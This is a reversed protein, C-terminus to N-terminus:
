RNHWASFVCFLGSLINGCYMIAGSPVVIHSVPLHFPFSLSFPVPFLSFLSALSLHLLVIWVICVVVANRRAVELEQVLQQLLFLSSMLLNFSTKKSHCLSLELVWRNSALPAAM